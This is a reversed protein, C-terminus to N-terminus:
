RDCNVVVVIAPPDMPRWRDHSGDDDPPVIKYRKWILKLRLISVPVHQQRCLGELLIRARKTDERRGWQDLAREWRHSLFSVLQSTSGDEEEHPAGQPMGIGNWEGTKLGQMVDIWSSSATDKDMDDDDDGGPLSYISTYGVINTVIANKPPHAYM